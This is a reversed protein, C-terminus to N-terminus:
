IAKNCYVKAQRPTYIGFTVAGLVGDLFSMHAEVKAVKDAGGCIQAANLEQTQGLGSVFFPQMVEQDPTASASAGGQMTFTQTSCGVLSLLALGVLANKMTNM